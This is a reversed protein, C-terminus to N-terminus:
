RYHCDNPCGTYHECIEFPDRCYFEFPYKIGESKKGERDCVIELPEKGSHTLVKYKDGAWTCVIKFCEAFQKGNKLQFNSKVKGPLCVSNKGYAFSPIKTKRKTKCSRFSSNLKCYRSFGTRKCVQVYELSDGCSITKSKSCFESYDETECEESFIGCGKERGWSYQEGSMLDVDYWGSDAAVALSMGSFVADIPSDPVM